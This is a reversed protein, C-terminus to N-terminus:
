KKSFLKESLDTLWGKRSSVVLIVALALTLVITWWFSTWSPNMAIASFSPIAILISVLALGFELRERKEAAESEAQHESERRQERARDEEARTFSTLIEFRLNLDNELDELQKDVGLQKQIGTLLQTAAARRPIHSFWLERRFDLHEQQLEALKENALALNETTAGPLNGEKESMLEVAYLQRIALLALEVYRTQCLRYPDPHLSLNPSTRVTAFGFETACDLWGQSSPIAGKSAGAASDAPLRSGLSPGAALLHAWQRATTWASDTFEHGAMKSFPCPPPGADPYPIACSLTFIRRRDFTDNGTRADEPITTYGGDLTFDFEIDGNRHKVKSNMVLRDGEVRFFRESPELIRGRDPTTNSDGERRSMGLVSLKAHFELLEPVSLTRWPGDKSKAGEPCFAWNARSTHVPTRQLDAIPEGTRLSRTFNAIETATPNEITLHLVIFDVSHHRDCGTFRLTEVARLTVFGNKLYAIRNEGFYACHADMETNWRANFGDPQTVATHGSDTLAVAPDSPAGSNTSQDAIPAEIMSGTAVWLRRSLWRKPPEHNAALSKPGSDSEGGANPLDKHFDISSLGRYRGRDFYGGVTPRRNTAASAPSDAPDPLHETACRASVPLVVSM